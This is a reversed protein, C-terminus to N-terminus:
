RFLPIKPITYRRFARVVIACLAYLNIFVLLNDKLAVCTTFLILLDQHEKAFTNHQCTKTRNQQIFSRHLHIAKFCQYTEIGHM